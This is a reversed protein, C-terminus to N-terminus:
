GDHPPDGPARDLALAVARASIAAYAAALPGSLDRRGSKVPLPGLQRIVADPTATEAFAFRLAALGPGASWFGEIRMARAAEDNVAPRDDRDLPPEGAGRLERLRALLEERTRGRWAFILFPDEDFREALIYYTAAIHKCPNSWDPCSCSTTLDRTGAPFLSVGAATFAEEIEHPMEGALLRALFLAREAMAAEVKAWQASTLPRLAIEVAYPQVRSGQVAATVRGPEVALDMVQGRRAYARGRQLRAGINFSELVSIFRKSWWTDGITGTARRTKIGGNAQRPASPTYSPWYGWSRYRGM